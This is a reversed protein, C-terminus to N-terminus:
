FFDLVAWAQAFRDRRVRTRFRRRDDIESQLFLAGLKFFFPQELAVSRRREFAYFEFESADFREYFLVFFVGFKVGFFFFQRFKARLDVGVGRFGRM